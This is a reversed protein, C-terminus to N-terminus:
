DNEPAVTWRVNKIQRPTPPPIPAEGAARPRYNERSLMEKFKQALPNQVTSVIIARKQENIYIKLMDLAITLM